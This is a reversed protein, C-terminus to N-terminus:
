KSENTVKRNFMDVDDAQGPIEGDLWAAYFSAYNILDIVSDKLAEHNPVFNPDNQVTEQISKIRLMKGHMIDYITSVGNIYYDAQKVSSSPNQYDEAKKKQIKVCEELVEYSKMGKERTENKQTQIMNKITSVFIYDADKYQSPIVNKLIDKVPVIGIPIIDVVDGARLYDSRPTIMQYFLFHTLDGANYFDIYKQKDDINFYNKVAKVDILMDDIKFDHCLNDPPEVNGQQIHYWEFFLYDAQGISPLYGQIYQDDRYKIFEDTIKFRFPELIKM